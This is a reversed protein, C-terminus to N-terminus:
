NRGFRAYLPPLLFLNLVTSTILGGLIVVALPYEIEQGPKNGTVALPLLALGTALATMLIPALREEAGRLVLGVGFPVGEETELHRFHSVLMIGNRAAIGLVTVFGSWQGWRCWAAPSSSRSYEAWSRSRSPSARGAADAALRRLRSFLLLVIGLLPSRPWASLPTRTSERRAAYEGLFEPHYEREFPIAKM